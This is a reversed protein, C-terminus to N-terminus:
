SRHAKYMAVWANGKDTLHLRGQNEGTTATSIKVLELNIARQLEGTYNLGKIWHAYVWTPTAAIRSLLFAVREDLSFTLEAM